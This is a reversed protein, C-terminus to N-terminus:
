EEGDYDGFTEPNERALMKRMRHLEYSDGEWFSEGVHLITFPNPNGNEKQFETGLRFGACFAYWCSEPFWDPRTIYNKSSQGGSMKLEEMSISVTPRPLDEIAPESFLCNNCHGTMGNKRYGCKDCIEPLPM